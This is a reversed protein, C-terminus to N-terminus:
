LFLPGLGPGTGIQWPFPAPHETPNPHGNRPLGRFGHPARAHGGVGKREGKRGRRHFPDMLLTKGHQFPVWSRCEGFVFDAREKSQFTHEGWLSGAQFLSQCSLPVEKPHEGWFPPGAPDCRARSAPDKGSGSVRRAGRPRKAMPHALGKAVQTFPDGIVGM